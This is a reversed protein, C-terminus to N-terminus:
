DPLSAKLQDLKASHNFLVSLASRSPAALDSGLMNKEYPNAVRATYTVLEDREQASLGDWWGKLTFGDDKVRQAMKGGVPDLNLDHDVHVHTYTNKTFNNNTIIDKYDLEKYQSKRAGEDPKIKCVQPASNAGEDPKIKCVGQATKLYRKRGEYGVKLYGLKVLRKILYRAGSESIPLDTSLFKRSVFCPRGQAEFEAVYALFVMGDFGLHKHEKLVKFFPSSQALKESM